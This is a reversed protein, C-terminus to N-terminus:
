SCKSPIGGDGSGSGESIQIPNLKGPRGEGSGSTLADEDDVPYYKKRTRSTSMQRLFNGKIASNVRQLFNCFIICM